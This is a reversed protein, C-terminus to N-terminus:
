LNDNFLEHAVVIHLGLRQPLFANYGLV